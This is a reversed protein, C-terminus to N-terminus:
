LRARLRRGLPHAAAACFLRMLEVLTSKELRAYGRPLVGALGTDNLEITAMALDVNGGLDESEPLDVLFSLRAKEPVFLVGRSRYDDATVTRRETATAELEPRLQEFRHEAFALFILGLVPDRYQAATLTSNARLEDAAAWLRRELEGLDTM